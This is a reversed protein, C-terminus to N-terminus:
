VSFFKNDPDNKPTWTPGPDPQVTYVTSAQILPYSAINDLIFQRLEAEDALYGFEKEDMLQARLIKIDADSALQGPKFIDDTGSYVFIGNENIQVRMFPLQMYLARKCILPELKEILLKNDATPNAVGGIKLQMVLEDYQTKGILKPIYRSEIERIKNKLQIFVRRSNNIPIHKSAITTGYVISGSLKTNANIDAFWQEYNGAVATANKELFELLKDANIDGNKLANLQLKEIMWRPAADSDEGRHQRVGMEGFTSSLHPIALLQTYYALCRQIYPLLKANNASLATNPPNIYDLYLPHYYDYFAQGLLPVMYLQEAEDIYPQLTAMKTNGDIAIYKKFEAITAILGM